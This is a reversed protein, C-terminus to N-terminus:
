KMLEGHVRYWDLKEKERNARITAAELSAQQSQIDTLITELRENDECVIFEDQLQKCLVLNDRVKRVYKLYYDLLKKEIYKNM